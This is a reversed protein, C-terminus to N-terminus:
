AACIGRGEVSRVTLDGYSGDPAGLHTIGATEERSAQVVGV